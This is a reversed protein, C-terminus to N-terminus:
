ADREIGFVEFTATADAKGTIPKVGFVAGAVEAVFDTSDTINIVMYEGTTLDGISTVNQVWTDANAASGFDFDNAGALSESADYVLVKTVFHVKGTPVTYLNRKTGATLLVGTVVDSLRKEGVSHTGDTNHEVALYTDIDSEYTEGTFLTVAKHTGDDNHEVALYTDVAMDDGMVEGAGIDGTIAKHKGTTEHEVVLFENLETGWSNSSGGVTPLAAM